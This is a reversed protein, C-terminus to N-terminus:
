TKSPVARTSSGPLFIRRHGCRKREGATGPVLILRDVKEPSMLALEQAICAGMSFGLVHARAIGLREMLGAADKAFLPVSFPEDSAGSFGTGRNDFVIVRFNRSIRGILPPNWTDMASALGNIFLIPYGSGYEHYVLTVDGVSILTNPVRVM